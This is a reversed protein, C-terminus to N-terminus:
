PIFEYDSDQECDSRSGVGPPNNSPQEDFYCVRVAVESGSQVDGDAGMYECGPDGGRGRQPRSAGNSDEATLVRRDSRGKQRLWLEAVITHGDRKRDCARLWYRAGASTEGTDFLLASGGEFKAGTIPAAGAPSAAVALMTAAAMAAILINRSRTMPDERAITTTVRRRRAVDRAAKM